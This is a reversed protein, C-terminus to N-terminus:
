AECDATSCSWYRALSVHSLSVHLTCPLSLSSICKVGIAPGFLLEVSRCICCRKRLATYLSMYRSGIASSKDSSVWRSRTTAPGGCWDLYWGLNKNFSWSTILKRGILWDWTIVPPYGFLLEVPFVWRICTSLWGCVAVIGRCSVVVSVFKGRLATIGMLQFSIKDVVM